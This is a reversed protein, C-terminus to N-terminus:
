AESGMFHARSKALARGPGYLICRSDRFYDHLSPRGPPAIRAVTAAGSQEAACSRIRKEMRSENATVSVISAPASRHCSGQLLGNCFVM